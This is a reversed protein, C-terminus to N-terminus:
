DLLVTVNTHISILFWKFSEWADVLLLTHTKLYLVHYDGFDKCGFKNWVEKAHYYQKNTIHDYKPRTIIKHFIGIVKALISINREYKVM